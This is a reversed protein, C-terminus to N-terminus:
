LEKEYRVETIQVGGIEEIKIPTALKWSQREYFERARTNSDLVWLLARGYGEERLHSEGAELLARGHGQGWHDPHAYISLIEGWGEESSPAAWCFAVVEGGSESVYVADGAGIQEAFFRERREMDLRELFRQPFIGRYAHQWSTVHVEALRSADEPSALRIM